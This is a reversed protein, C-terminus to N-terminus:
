KQCVIKPRESQRDGTKVGFRKEEEGATDEMSIPGHISYATLQRQLYLHLFYLLPSTSSLALLPKESSSQCVM